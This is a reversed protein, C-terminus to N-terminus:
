HGERGSLSTFNTFRARIIDYRFVGRDSSSLAVVIRSRFSKYIEM